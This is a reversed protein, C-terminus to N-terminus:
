NNENLLWFIGQQQKCYREQIKTKFFNSIKVSNHSYIFRKTYSDIGIKRYHEHFMKFPFLEVKQQSRDVIAYYDPFPNNIENIFYCESKKKVEILLKDKKDILSYELILDTSKETESFSYKIQEKIFTKVLEVDLKSDNLQQISNLPV